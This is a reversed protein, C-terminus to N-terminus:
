TNETSFYYNVIFMMNQQPMTFNLWWRDCDIERIFANGLYKYPYKSGFNLMSSASRLYGDQIMQDTSELTSKVCGANTVHLKLMKDIYYYTNNREGPGRTEFRARDNYYDFFEKFHYTHGHTSIDVDIEFFPSLAPLPIPTYEALCHGPVHWVGVRGDDDGTMNGVHFNSFEIYQESDFRNSTANLGRVVLHARVPIRQASATWINWDVAAFYFVTTYQFLIWNNGRFNRVRQYRQVWRECNIGNVVDIGDYVENDGFRFLQQTTFIHGGNDIWFSNPHIKESKCNFMNDKDITYQWGNKTDMYIETTKNREHFDVRLRGNLEDVYETLSYTANFRVDTISVTTRFQDPLPPLAIQPYPEYCARPVVFEYRYFPDNPYFNTIEFSASSLLGANNMNWTVRVPVRYSNLGRVRWSSVAYYWTRQYNVGNVTDTSTWVDCNIYRVTATGAPTAGSGQGFLDAGPKMIGTNPDVFPPTRWNLKTCTRRQPDREYSEM